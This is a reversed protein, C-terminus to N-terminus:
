NHQVVTGSMGAAKGPFNKQGLAARFNKYGESGLFGLNMTGPLGGPFKDLVLLESM